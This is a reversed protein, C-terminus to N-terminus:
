SLAPTLNTEKVREEIWGARKVSYRRLVGQRIGERVQEMLGYKRLLAVSVGCEGVVAAIGGKRVKYERQKEANYALLHVGCLLRGTIAPAGCVKCKREKKM